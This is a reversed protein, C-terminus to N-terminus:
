WEGEGSWRIGDGDEISREGSGPVVKEGPDCLYERVKQVVVLWGQAGSATPTPLFFFNIKRTFGKEAHRGCWRTNM